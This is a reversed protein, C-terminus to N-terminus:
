KCHTVDQRFWLPEKSMEGAKPRAEAESRQRHVDEAHWKQVEDTEPYMFLLALAPRPVLAILDPETFSYLDHFELNPNLGLRHALPNLIEPNNETCTNDTVTCLNM